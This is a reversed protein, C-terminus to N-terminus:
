QDQSWPIMNLDSQRATHVTDRRRHRGARAARSWVRVNLRQGPVMIREKHSSASVDEADAQHRSSSVRVRPSTLTLLAHESDHLNTTQAAVPWMRVTSAWANLASSPAMSHQERSRCARMEATLRMEANDTISAGNRHCLGWVRVRGGVGITGSRLVCDLVLLITDQVAFDVHVQDRVRVIVRAPLHSYILSYKVLM